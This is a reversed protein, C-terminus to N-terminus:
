KYHSVNSFKLRFRIFHNTFPHSSLTLLLNGIQKIRILILILRQHIFNIEILSSEKM